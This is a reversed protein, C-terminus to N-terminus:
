GHRAILSRTEALLNGLTTSGALRATIQPREAILSEAALVWERLQSILEFQETAAMQHQHRGSETIAWADDVSASTPAM